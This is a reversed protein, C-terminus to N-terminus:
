RARPALAEAVLPGLFDLQWARAGHEALAATIAAPDDNDYLARQLIGPPAVLSPQIGLECALEDIEPRIAAWRSAAEPRM